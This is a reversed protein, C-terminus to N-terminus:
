LIIQKAKSEAVEWDKLTDINCYYDPNSEIFGMFNGYFSKDKLIINTKTIYISGDRHFAKPLDQRRKIIEKEGTAIQLQNDKLEFTWHPNYEHPVELVSLLTDYNNKTFKEIADDLFGKPRFPSTPQLLIVADYLNNKALLQQLTDYVVDISSSTDTALDSSRKFISVKNKHAIELIEDDDSNVIIDTILKSNKAANITYEILPIGNLLKINKRPVGKSGGRAPIIALIKM